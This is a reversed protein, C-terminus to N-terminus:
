AFRAERLALSPPRLLVALNRSRRHTPPHSRPCALSRAQRRVFHGGHPTRWHGVAKLVLEAAFFADLGQRPFLSSM